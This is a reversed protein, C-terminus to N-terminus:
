ELYMAKRYDAISTSVGAKNGFEAFGLDLRLNLFIKLFDGSRDKAM